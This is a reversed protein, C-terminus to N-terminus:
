PFPLEAHKKFPCGNGKAQKKQGRGIAWSAFLAKLITRFQYVTESIGTSRDNDRGSYLHGVQPQVAEIQFETLLVRLFETLIEMAIPKGACSRPGAGFPMSVYPNKSHGPIWRQPEFSQDQRFQDFLVFFQTQRKLPTGAIRTGKELQRELIPFPHKLRIAEFLIGSLHSKENQLAWKKALSMTKADARLFHFTAAMIDSFNIQPSIIWPQAIASLWHDRESEEKLLSSLRSHNFIEGLRKWFHSKIEPNGRGKMAIEKRWELSAQYFLEEDPTSIQTEFLLEYLIRLTLKSVTEADIIREGLPKVENGLEQKKLLLYKRTIACTRDRWHTEGLLLRFKQALDRWKEDDVSETSSIPSWAPTAILNEIFSGKNDSAALIQGCLEPDSDLIVVDKQQLFGCFRLFKSRLDNVGSGYRM